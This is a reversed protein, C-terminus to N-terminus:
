PLRALTASLDLTGGSAVAGTLATSTDVAGLLATRIQAATATPAAALARAVTRTVAAAAQSTGTKRGYRGHPLTSRIDVGPAVLDVSKAGRASWTTIHGDSGSAAVVLMGPTRYSAPYVPTVDLDQGGNGAATVVVAGAASARALAAAIAPDDGYDAVSLNIVRAGNAVAYDLGAALDAGTGTGDRGIIRVAMIRVGKARAVIGAIHTGHGRPDKPAGDHGVMDAGNVDDVFGNGDDDVGNRAIERPNRWASAKLAPHTFDVGSDLVAVLPGRAAASAPSASVGFAAAVVLLLGV